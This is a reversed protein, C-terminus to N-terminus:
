ITELGLAMRLLRDEVLRALLAANEAPPLLPIEASKGIQVISIALACHGFILVPSTAMAAIRAGLIAELNSWEAAELEDATTATASRNSQFVQAIMGAGADARARSRLETEQTKPTWAVAYSKGEPAWVLLEGPATSSISELWATTQPSLLHSLNDAAIERAIAALRPKLEAGLAEHTEDPIIVLRNM